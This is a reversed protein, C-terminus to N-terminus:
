GIASLLPVFTAYIIHLRMHHHERSQAGLWLDIAWGGAVAWWDVVGDMVEAVTNPHVVWVHHCSGRM